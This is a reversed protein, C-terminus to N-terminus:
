RVGKLAVRLAGAEITPNNRITRCLAGGASSSIIWYKGFGLTCQADRSYRAHRLWLASIASPKRRRSRETIDRVVGSHAPNGMRIGCWNGNIEVPIIEGRSSSVNMFLTVAPILRKM